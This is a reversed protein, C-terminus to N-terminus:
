LYESTIEKVDPIQMVRDIFSKNKRQSTTVSIEIEYGERTKILHADSYHIGLDTIIKKVEIIVAAREETSIVYIYVKGQKELVSSLRQVLTLGIVFFITVLFATLYYGSGVVMGIAGVSWVVATTTLGRPMFREKIIIAAGIIGLATIIHGAMPSAATTTKISIVTMLASAMAILVSVKLGAEKHSIERELGIIGGLVAALLMKLIIEIEM